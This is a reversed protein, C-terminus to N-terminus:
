SKPLPAGVAVDCRHGPQGHAPNMGEAVKPTEGTSLLAPVPNNKPQEVTFSKTTTGSQATTGTTTAATTTTAVPSNLPAGVPIDCRHGPQGHSPNMGKGVKVPAAVTTTTVMKQQNANVQVTQGPQATPQTQTQTPASNLPAGVAIDCRHGPQGHAPNIGGTTNMVTNPNTVPAQVVSNVKATDKMLGLKILESTPTNEQPELEKKCSVFILSSIVLSSVLIKPNM